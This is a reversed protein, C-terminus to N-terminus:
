ESDRTRTRHFAWKAIKTGTGRRLGTAIDRPSTGRRHGTASDRPSTGHRLGTAIDRPPTGHRHGTAIDRPPKRKTEGTPRHRGSLETPRNANQRRRSARRRHQNRCVRTLPVNTEIPASPSRFSSTPKMARTVHTPVALIHHCYYFTIHKMFEM